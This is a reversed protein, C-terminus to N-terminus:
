TMKFRGGFTFKRYSPTSSRQCLRFVAVGALVFDFFTAGACAVVEFSSYKNRELSEKLFYKASFIGNDFHARQNVGDHWVFNGNYNSNWSGRNDASIDYVRHINAERENDIKIFDRHFIADNSESFRSFNPNLKLPNSLLDLNIYNITLKMTYLDNHLKLINILVTVCWKAEQRLAAGKKWEVTMVISFKLNM